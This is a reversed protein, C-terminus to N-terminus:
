FFQTVNITLVNMLKDYEEPNGKIYEIYKEIGELHLARLRVAIRRSICKDRYHALLTKTEPPCDAWTTTLKTNM